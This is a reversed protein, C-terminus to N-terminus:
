EGLPGLRPTPLSTFLEPTLIHPLTLSGSVGDTSRFGIASTLRLALEDGSDGGRIYEYPLSLVASLSCFKKKERPSRAAPIEAFWCFEGFKRNRLAFSTSTSTTGHEYYMEQPFEAGGTRRYSIKCNSCYM